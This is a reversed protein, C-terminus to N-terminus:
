GWLCKGKFGFVYTHRPRMAGKFCKFTNFYNFLMCGFPFKQSPFDGSKQQKVIFFNFFILYISYKFRDKNTDRKPLSTVEDFCRM